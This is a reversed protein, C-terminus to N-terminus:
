RRKSPVLFVLAAAIFLISLSTLFMMQTLQFTFVTLLTQVGVAIYGIVKPIKGIAVLISLVIVAVVLVLMALLLFSVFIALSEM